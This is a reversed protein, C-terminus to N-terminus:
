KILEVILGYGFAGALLLGGSVGLLVTPIFVVLWIRFAKAEFEQEATQVEQVFTPSPEQALKKQLKRFHLTRAFMGYVESVVFLLASVLVLLGSSLILVKNLDPKMTKWITFFAAYGAVLILNTYAASRSYTHTVIEKIANIQTRQQAQMEAATLYNVQKALRDYGRRVDDIAQQTARADDSLM